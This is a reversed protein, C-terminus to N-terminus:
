YLMECFGVKKFFYINEVQRSAPGQVSILGMDRSLDVLEVGSTLGADQCFFCFEIERLYFFVM